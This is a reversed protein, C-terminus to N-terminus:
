KLGEALRVLGHPDTITIKERGSTLFGKREWTSLTRSVTFLTTGTMEALEQRSFSLDIRIGQEIKTGTQAALRVLTRAIRQEVRETALERFRQQMEQIYGTMLQMMGFALRPNKELLVKFESARIALATCNELAQASAPYSASPDVAGVAGFLHYPLLTRLNVQEGDEALQSLKARGESLVYLYEATEGQHFFFSGEEVQRQIAIQALTHIDNDSVAKFIEVQRLIQQPDLTPKKM